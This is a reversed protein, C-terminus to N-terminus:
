LATVETVEHAQNLSIRRGPSFPSPQSLQWHTLREYHAIFRALADETMRQEEPIAQEQQARLEYVQAFGPVQLFVWYDMLQWLPQYRESIQENVWDRWIGLDDEECELSNVPEKLLDAPQETIGVCWGELILCQGRATRTGARDDRGKDFVPLVFDGGGAAALHLVQGLLETDHTGPVGRTQCLPHIEHALALRAARTLYFDDLSVVVTEIQRENLRDALVASLTSKGSGQAGAVGILRAPADQAVLDHIIQDVAPAWARELGNM